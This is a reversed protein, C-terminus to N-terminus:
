EGLLRIDSSFAKITNIAFGEDRMHVEFVSLAAQISADPKIPSPASQEATDPLESDSLLPQQIDDNM